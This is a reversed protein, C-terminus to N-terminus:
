FKVFIFSTALILAFQIFLQFNFIFEKGRGTSCSKKVALIVLVKNFILIQCLIAFVQTFSQISYLVKHFMPVIILKTPIMYLVSVLKSTSASHADLSSATSPNIVFHDLLCMKNLNEQFLSRIIYHVRPSSCWSHMIIQLM